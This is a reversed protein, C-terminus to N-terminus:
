NTQFLGCHMATAAQIKIARCITAVTSSGKQHHKKKQLKVLHARSASAWERNATSVKRESIKFAKKPSVPARKSVSSSSYHSCCSCLHSFLEWFAGFMESKDYRHLDSIFRQSATQNSGLCHLRWQSPTMISSFIVSFVCFGYSLILSSKQETDTPATAWTEAIRFVTSFFISKVNVEQWHLLQAGSRIRVNGQFFTQQRGELTLAISVTRYM